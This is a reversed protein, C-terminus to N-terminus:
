EWCTTAPPKSTLDVVVAGVGDLALIGEAVEDFFARPLDLGPMVPQGTMFDTTVIGRIAVSRQCTGALDAPFLVLPMQAVHRDPDYRRLAREGVTHVDRLLDALSEGLRTPLIPPWAAPDSAAAASWSPVHPPAGRQAVLAVVRNIRDERRPLADAVERARDWFGAEATDGYLVAVPAYTRADGQVGVTAVPALRGTLRGQGIETVAHDISRALDALGGRVDCPGDACLIRIALGPGPFPRRQALDEGLGLEAAVRRVDDKYWDANPELV